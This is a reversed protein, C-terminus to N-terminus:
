AEDKRVRLVFGSVIFDTTYSYILELEEFGVSSLSYMDWGGTEGIPPPLVLTERSKIPNGWAARVSVKDTCNYPQPLYGGFEPEREVRRIITITVARLVKTEADFVFSIGPAPELYIKIDGYFLKIFRLKPDLGIDLLARHTKGLCKLWGEVGLIENM